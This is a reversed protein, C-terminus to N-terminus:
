ERHEQVHWILAQAAEQLRRTRARTMPGPPVYFDENRNEISLEEDGYDEQQDMDYTCSIVQSFFLCFFVFIM